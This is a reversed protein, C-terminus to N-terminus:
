DGDRIRVDLHSPMDNVIEIDVPVNIYQIPIFYSNM